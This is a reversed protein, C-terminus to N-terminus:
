RKAKRPESAGIGDFLSTLFTRVWAKADFSPDLWYQLGIGDVAGILVSALVDVDIGRKVAGEAEAARILGSVERRYEAYLSRMAKAFRKRTGTKAAAAWVELTVPYLEIHAVFAGVAAEAFAILQERPGAGPKVEAISAQLLQGQFWEFVAYFLDEKNKFYDYLSGKSVGAAAAVDDMLTAEYGTRAFQAAAAEVIQLRKAAPDFIRAM